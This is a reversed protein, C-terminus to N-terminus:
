VFPDNVSVVFVNGADKLAPHSLFKPIHKESCSPGITNQDSGLFSTSSM